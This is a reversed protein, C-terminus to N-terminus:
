SAEPEDAYKLSSEGNRRQITTEGLRIYSALSSGEAGAEKFRSHFIGAHGAARPLSLSLFESFSLTFLLHEWEYFSKNVYLVLSVSSFHPKKASVFCIETQGVIQAQVQAVKEISVVFTPWM